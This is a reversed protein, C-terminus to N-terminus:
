VLYAATGGPESVHFFAPRLQFSYILLMASLASMVCDCARSELCRRIGSTFLKHVSLQGSLAVYQITPMRCLVAM